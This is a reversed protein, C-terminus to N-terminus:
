PWALPMKWVTTDARTVAMLMRPITLQVCRQYTGPPRRDASSIPRARASRARRPSRAPLLQCSSGDVCPNVSRAADRVKGDVCTDVSQDHSVPRLLPHARWAHPHVVLQLDATPRRLNLPLGELVHEGLDHPA